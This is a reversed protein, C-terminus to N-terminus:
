WKANIASSFNEQPRCRALKMQYVVSPVSGGWIICNIVFLFLSLLFFNYNNYLVVSTVQPM